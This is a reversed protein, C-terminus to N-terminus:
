CLGGGQGPREKFRSLMGGVPQSPKRFQACLDHAINDLFMPNLRESSARSRFGRGIKFRIEPVLFEPESLAPYWAM